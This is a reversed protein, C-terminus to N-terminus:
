FLVKIDERFWEKWEGGNKTLKFVLHNGLAMNSKEFNLEFDKATYSRGERLEYVYAGCGELGFEFREGITAERAERISESLGAFSGTHISQPAVFLHGPLPPGYIMLVIFNSNRFRYRLERMVLGDIM